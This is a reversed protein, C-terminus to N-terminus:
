NYNKYTVIRKMQKLMINLSGISNSYQQTMVFVGADSCPLLPFIDTEFDYTMRIVRETEEMLELSGPAEGGQAYLEQIQAEVGYIQMRYYLRLEEIEEESECAFTFTAREHAEERAERRIWLFLMLLAAAALTLAIRGHTSPILRRGKLKTEFRKLHGEPLLDNDFDKRNNDIFDKLKDM